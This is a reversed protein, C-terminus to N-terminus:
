GHRFPDGLKRAPEQVFVPQLTVCDPLASFEVEQVYLELKVTTADLPELSMELSKVALRDTLDEDGLFIRFQSDNAHPGIVIRLPENM